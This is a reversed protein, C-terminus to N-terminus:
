VNYRYLYKKREMRFPVAYDKKLCNEFNRREELKYFIM